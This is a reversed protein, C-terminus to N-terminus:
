SESYSNLQENLDSKLGREELLQCIIVKERLALSSMNIPNSLPMNHVVFICLEAFISCFIPFLSCFLTCKCPRTTQIDPIM